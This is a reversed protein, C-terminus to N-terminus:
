FSFTNTLIFSRPEPVTYTTVFGQGLNARQSFPDQDDFLNRINLQVRWNLRKGIRRSYGLFMEVEHLAEGYIPSNLAPVNLQAPAGAFPFAHDVLALRYGLVPKSRWRYSGGVHAGRLKGETFSYRTVFNARWARGQEVKQGDAQRMLNLTQMAALYRSGITTTSTGPGALHAYQSWVGAREELLTTWTRGINSETATTHAGNLAIRWNRTPNAIIEAEYGKSVQDSTLEWVNPVDPDYHRPAPM